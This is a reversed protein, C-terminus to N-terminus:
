RVGKNRNVISGTTICISGDSGCAANGITTAPGSWIPKKHVTKVQTHGLASAVTLLNYPMVSSSFHRNMFLNLPLMRRLLAKSVDM